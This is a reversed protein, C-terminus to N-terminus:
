RESGSKKRSNTLRLCKATEEILNSMQSVVIVLGLEARSHGEFIAVRKEKSGPRQLIQRQDIFHFGQRGHHSTMYCIETRKFDQCLEFISNCNIKVSKYSKCGIFISRLQIGHTSTPRSRRQPHQTVTKFYRLHGNRFKRTVRISYPSDLLASITIRCYQNFDSTMTVKGRRLRIKSSNSAYIITDKTLAVSTSDM